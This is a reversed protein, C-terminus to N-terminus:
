QSVARRKRVEFVFFALVIVIAIAIAIYAGISSSSIGSDRDSTSALASLLASCDAAYPNDVAFSMGTYVDPDDAVLAAKATGDAIVAALVCAVERRDGFNSSRRVEMDLVVSGPTLGYLRLMQPPFRAIRSPSFRKLILARIRAIYRERATPTYEQVTTGPITAKTTVAAHM